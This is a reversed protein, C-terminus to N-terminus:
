KFSFVKTIEGWYIRTQSKYSIENLTVKKSTPTLLTLCLNCTQFQTTTKRCSCFGTPVLILWLNISVVLKYNQRNCYTTYGQLNLHVFLLKQVGDYKGKVKVDKIFTRTNIAVTRIVLRLNTTFCIINILLIFCSAVSVVVRNDLDIRSAWNECHVKGRARQELLKRHVQIRLVEM